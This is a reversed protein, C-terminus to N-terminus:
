NKGPFHPDYEKLNGIWHIKEPWSQQYKLIAILSIKQFTVDYLMWLKEIFILSRM